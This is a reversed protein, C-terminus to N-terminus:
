RAGGDRRTRSATRTRSVTWTQAVTGALARPRGQLGARAAPCAHGAAHARVDAAFATMASAALRVAGDPHHCAGRGAIVGLRVTLRELLGRDPRAASLRAFDDAIAPLGFMCPGCQRAGQEALFRLIRATEALGCGGEPLIYLVGAGPSAGADRLGATTLRLGAVDRIDHWTGFYGGVLVYGSAPAGSMALVDGTWTGCEIEYVGPDSVAGSTTVLMTGPVDPHGAQRFWGPGYRAILAVHALTEVNDVLTPRRQVGREALRPPTLVPKADGGNLWRVVASAESATYRRPLEHVWTPVVDLGAQQREGIARLVAARQAARTRDLCVHIVDAGVAHAAAQAGDLVLHPARALLAQDKRSAPESEMGNAVVVAPGRGAAVARMKRGTPFGAGGRGALGAETVAEALGRRQGDRRGPPPGYRDLHEALGASRGAQHWGITLRRTAGPAARAARSM